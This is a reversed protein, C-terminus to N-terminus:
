EEVEEHDAETAVGGELYAEAEQEEEQGVQHEAERRGEQEARAEHEEWGEGERLFLLLPGVTVREAGIAHDRVALGLHNPHVAATDEEM